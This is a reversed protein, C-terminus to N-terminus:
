QEASKQALSDKMNSVEDEDSGKGDNVKDEDAENDDKLKKLIKLLIESSPQYRDDYNIFHACLGIVTKLYYGIDINKGLRKAVEPYEM